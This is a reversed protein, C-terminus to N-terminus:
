SVSTDFSDSACSLTDERQRAKGRTVQLKSQKGRALSHACSKVHAVLNQRYVFADGCASCRFRKSGHVANIHVKLTSERTFKASCGEVTCAFQCQPGHHLKEHAKLNSPTSYAKGCSTCVHAKPHEAKKHAVLDHFKTFQKDCRDCSRMKSAATLSSHCEGHHKMLAIDTSFWRHHTPCYLGWVQTAKERREGRSELESKAASCATSHVQHNQRKRFTSGCTTCELGSHTRMHRALRQNTAFEANCVTCVAKPGANHVSKQHRDLHEQPFCFTSQSVTISVEESAWRAGRVQSGPGGESERVTV